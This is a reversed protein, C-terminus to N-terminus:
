DELFIVVEEAADRTVVCVLREVASPNRPRHPMGAPIFIADGAAAHVSKDRAYGYDAMVEGSIV